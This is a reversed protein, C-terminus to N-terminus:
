PVDARYDPAQRRTRLAQVITEVQNGLQAAAQGIASELAALSASVGHYEKVFDTQGSEEGGIDTRVVFTNKGAEAQCDIGVVVAELDPEGRWRFIRFSFLPCRQTVTKGVETEIEPLQRQVAELLSVLGHQLKEHLHQWATETLGNDQTLPPMSM